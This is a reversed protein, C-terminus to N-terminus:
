LSASHVLVHPFHCGLNYVGALLQQVQHVVVEDWGVASYTWVGCLRSHRACRKMASAQGGAVLLDGALDKVVLHSSTRSQKVVTGRALRVLRVVM